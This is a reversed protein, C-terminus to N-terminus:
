VPPHTNVRVPSPFHINIFIVTVYLLLGVRYNNAHKSSAMYELVCMRRSLSFRLYVILEALLIRGQICHVVLAWLAPHGPGIFSVPKKKKTTASVVRFVCTCLPSPGVTLALIMEVEPQIFLPTAASAPICEQGVPTYLRAHIRNVLTDREITIWSVRNMRPSCVTWPLAACTCINCM